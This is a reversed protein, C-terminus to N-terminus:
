RPGFGTEKNKKLLPLHSLHSSRANGWQPYPLMQQIATKPTGAGGGNLMQLGSIASPQSM